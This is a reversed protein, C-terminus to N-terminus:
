QERSVSESVKLPLLPGKRCVSHPCRGRGSAAVPGELLRNLAFQLIRFGVRDLQLMRRGGGVARTEEKQKIALSLLSTVVDTIYPRHAPEPQLCMAAIAAVHSLDRFSFKGRLHPDAVQAVLKQDHVLSM